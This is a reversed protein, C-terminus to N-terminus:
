ALPTPTTVETGFASFPPQAGKPSRPAAAPHLITWVRCLLWVLGGIAACAVITLLVGLATPDYSPGCSGPVAISRLSGVGVLWPSPTCGPRHMEGGGGAGGLLQLRDVFVATDGRGESQLGVCVRVETGELRGLPVSLDRWEWAEGALRRKVVGWADDRWVNGRPWDPNVETISLGSSPMAASANGRYTTANTAAGRLGLLHLNDRTAASTCNPLLSIGGSAGTTEAWVRLEDAPESWGRQTAYIRASAEVAPASVVAPLSCVIVLGKVGDARLAFAQGGSPLTEVGVFAGQGINHWPELGNVGITDVYYANFGLLNQNSSLYVPSRMECAAADGGCGGGGPGYVTRFGRRHAAKHLDFADYRLEHACKGRGDRYTANNNAPVHSFNEGLLFSGSASVPSPMHQTTM